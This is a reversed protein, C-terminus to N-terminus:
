PDSRPTAHLDASISSAGACLGASLGREWSTPDSPQLAGNCGDSCPLPEAGSSSSCRLIRRVLSPRLTSASPTRKMTYKPNRLPHKTTSGMALLSNSFASKCPASYEGSYWSGKATHNTISMRSATGFAKKMCRQPRRGPKTMPAHPETTPLRDVKATSRKQWSGRSAYTSNFTEMMTVALTPMTSNTRNAAASAHESGSLFPTTTDRTTLPPAMKDSIPGKPAEMADVKPPPPPM